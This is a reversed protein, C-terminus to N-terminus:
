FQDIGPDQRRSRRPPLPEFERRLKPKGRVMGSVEARGLTAPHSAIGIAAWFLEMLEAQSSLKRTLALQVLLPHKEASIRSPRGARTM